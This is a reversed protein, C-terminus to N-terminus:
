RPTHVASVLFRDRLSPPSSVRSPYTTVTTRLIVRVYWGFLLSHEVLVRRCAYLKILQRINLNIQPAQNPAGM